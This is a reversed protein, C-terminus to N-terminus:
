RWRHEYDYDVQALWAQSFTRDRHVLVRVLVFRCYIRYPQRV